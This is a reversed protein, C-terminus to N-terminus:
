EMSPKFLNASYLAHCARAFVCVSVRRSAHALAMQEGTNLLSVCLGVVGSVQDSAIWM